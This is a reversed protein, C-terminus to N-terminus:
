AKWRIGGDAASCGADIREQPPAVLRRRRRRRSALARVFRYACAARRWNEAGIRVGWVKVPRLASLGMLEVGSLVTGKKSEVGGTLPKEIHKALLFLAIQTQM